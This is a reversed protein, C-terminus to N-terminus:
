STGETATDNDLVEFSGDSAGDMLMGALVDLRQLRVAARRREREVDALARQLAARGPGGLRRVPWQRWSGATAARIDQALVEPILGDPDRTSIRLIRAPYLVVGAGVEDVLATGQTGTWFIVDGPETLRGQPYESAFTLQSVARSGHDRAGTLEDVGIVRFQARGAIAAEVDPGTIRHGPLYKLCGDKLLSGIVAPTLPQGTGPQLGVALSPQPSSNLRAIQEEARVLEEAPSGPAAAAMAAPPPGPLSATLSGSSALLTRTPVLRAFRFAHARIEERGGMSAALDGVLDQRVDASLQLGTLDAVMTWREGIAVGAHAPALVWLAQAQRPKSRLLGQPLRVIARVRGSRLVDSRIALAARNRAPGTGTGSLSDTLVSAPALVVASQTGDMGLAINDVATLMQAADMDPVAPSPFQALRVLTGRGDPVPSDLVQLNEKNRGHVLLRRRALRTAPDDGTGAALVAPEVEGLMDAVDRLFDSGGDDMFVPPTASGAALELATAAVLEVAADTLATAAQEQAGTRFRDALLAEFAAEATYSADTLLDAYTALQSLEPGLAELETYLFADDPDLEDASDLLEDAGQRGLPSDTLCRLALLATLGAFHTRRTHPGAPVAFAAADDAAHPNNGRGTSALWDTVDRANFLEQSGDHAAPSPFPTATNRSRSRWMSVVPRKVKALLAVDPLTIRLEQTSSM